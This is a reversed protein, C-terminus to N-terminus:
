FTFNVRLFVHEYHLPGLGYSSWMWTHFTTRLSSLISFYICSFCRGTAAFIWVYEEVLLMDPFSLSLYIVVVDVVIIRKRQHPNEVDNRLSFFLKKKPSAEIIKSSTRNM